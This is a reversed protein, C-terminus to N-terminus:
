GGAFQPGVTAELLGTIAENEGVYLVIFRGSHYFHPTAMWAIMTTPTSSGDPSIQSAATAATAEDAFEFVQVDEGNVRIIQAMVEFFPQSLTEGPVVEAGAAELAAILSEYDTVGSSVASSAIEGSESGVIATFFQRCGTLAFVFLVSITLAWLHRKMAKM